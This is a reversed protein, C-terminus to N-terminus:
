ANVVYIISCVGKKEDKVLRMLKCVVVIIIRLLISLFFLTKCKAYVLLTVIVRM